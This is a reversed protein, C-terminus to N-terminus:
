PAQYVKNEGWTPSSWTAWQRALKKANAKLTRANPKTPDFPGRYWDKLDKHEPDTLAEKFM